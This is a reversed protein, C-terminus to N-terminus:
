FQYDERVPSFVDLVKAPANGTVVGHEVGGPIIFTDGAKVRRTEGAITIEIEGDIVTGAQEHPHSHMPVVANAELDAFSLLMEKGWFTRLRVGPVVEKAERNEVDCFYPMPVELDSDQVVPVSDPSHITDISGNEM